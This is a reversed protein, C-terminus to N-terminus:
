LAEGLFDSIKCPVNKAALAKCVKQADSRSKIPGAILDFTPADAEGRAVFRPELNKLAESHRDSLLSWSLRLSDVSAGSSIQVGVSKAEPKVVVKSFDVPDAAAPQEQPKPEQKAATKAAAKAAPKAATAVSGTELAATDLNLGSGDGNVLRPKQPSAATGPVDDGAPAKAKVPDNLEPAPHADAQIGSDAAGAQGAIKRELATLQASLMQGQADQGALDTKLKSLEMRVDSVSDKLGSLESALRSAFRPDDASLQTAPTGALLAYGLCLAASAGLASWIAVYPTFLKGARAEAVPPLPPPAYNALSHVSAHPNHHSPYPPPAHYPPQPGTRPPQHVTM